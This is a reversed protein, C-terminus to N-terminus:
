ESLETDERNGRRHVLCLIFSGFDFHFWGLNLPIHAVRYRAEERMANKPSSSKAAANICYGISWHALKQAWPEFPTRTRETPDEEGGESKASFLFHAARLETRFSDEEECKSDKGKRQM